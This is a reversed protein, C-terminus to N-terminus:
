PMINSSMIKAIGKTTVFRKKTIKDTLCEDVNKGFFDFFSVVRETNIVKLGDLGINIWFMENEVVEAGGVLVRGVEPIGSYTATTYIQFTKEENNLKVSILENNRFSFSVSMRTGSVEQTETNFNGDLVAEINTKYTIAHIGHVLVIYLYKYEDEKFLRLSAGIMYQGVSLINAYRTGNGNGIIFSCCVEIVKNEFGGYDINDIYATSAQYQKVLSKSEFVGNEVKKRLVGVAEDFYAVANKSYDANEIKVVAGM